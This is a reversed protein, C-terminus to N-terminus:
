LSIHSHVPKLSYGTCTLASVTSLGLSSQTKHRWTISVWPPWLKLRTGAQETSINIFLRYNMHLPWWESHCHILVHWFTRSFFFYLPPSHLRTLPLAASSHNFLLTVLTRKMHHIISYSQGLAVPHCSAGKPAKLGDSVSFTQGNWWVTVDFATVSVGTHYYRIVHFHDLGAIKKERQFKHNVQLQAHFRDPGYVM